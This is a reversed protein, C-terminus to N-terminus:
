AARILGEVLAEFREAMGATTFDPGIASLSGSSLRDLEPKDAMLAEITAALSGADGHRFRWGTIGDGFAAIEPMHRKGHDHVIAPLGYAMAHILSLGVEGPYLFASCRNAVAAIRDEDTTAGHWVVQQNIGLSEAQAQLDQRMEGDGVIHFVLEPSGIHALARLGLGLEAKATLRGIFMLAPERSDARYSKRRVRIPELDIGNNLAALMHKGRYVLPDSRYAKVEDDTYFLLADAFAMPLHRLVQRWRRSTSSWYHGWWIIHAGIVRARLLIALTSLQRPNGSLVVIDGRKIPIGVVGCQWEFGGMFRRVVGVSIAWEPTVSETLIGLSGNTFYVALETGYRRRLREFFDLRYKPLAPQVHIISPM